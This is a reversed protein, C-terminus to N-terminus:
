DSSTRLPTQEYPDTTLNYLEFDDDPSNKILKCVGKRIAYDIPQYHMTADPRIWFLTREEQLPENELISKSVSVGDFDITTLTETLICLTPFIDMTMAIQHCISEKKIKGKWYLCTPVRIGGEYLDNKSGRWNGNSAVTKLNGGSGSSFFILTNKLHNTPKLLNMLMGIDGDLHEVSAIHKQRNLEIDPVSQQQDYEENNPLLYSNGPADYALFRLFPHQKDTQQTIFKIAWFSVQEM